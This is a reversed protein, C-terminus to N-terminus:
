SKITYSYSGKNDTYSYSTNKYDGYYQINGELCQGKQLVGWWMGKVERPKECEPVGRWNVRDTNRDECWRWVEQLQCDCQLPNGYLYLTSLEPLAPLINIDVTRLKNYSLDLWNLASVNSFSEVSLLSVNCYSIELFSM